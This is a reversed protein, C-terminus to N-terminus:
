NEKAYFGKRARVAYDPNSTQIGIEHWRGDAPVRTYYDIVYASRLEAGVRLLADRLKRFNQIFFARGGNLEAFQGLLIQLSELELGAGAGVAYFPHGSRAVARFVATGSSTNSTDQGDTFCVLAKRGPKGDLYKIGTLIADYLRTMGGPRIDRIKSLVEERDDTSQAYTHIESSFLVLMVRDDRHMGKVFEAAAEKVSQVSDRISESTDVLLAIQLPVEQDHLQNIPVPQGDETVRFDSATLHPILEKGKTVALHIAVLQSQVSFRLNEGATKQGTQATGDAPMLCLLIAAAIVPFRNNM